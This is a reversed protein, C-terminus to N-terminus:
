DLAQQIDELLDDVHELGVSVRILGDTIGVALCDEKNVKAHSTSAPHTAITRTDGLNTSLSILNLRNLFNQGASLGGKLEFTVVGGGQKMQRKAIAHAPHSELFPYNVKSIAPHDQLAKALTLANACHRDMRVALTELSKSLIWANFPSLSPGTNRGFRYVADMLENNGCVIGGLVRGQGDIFKTASHTIIDAGFRAPQQLYPTAFCNDVVFLLDHKKALAGVKELDIIDLGPNSPTEVFIMKTTSLIEKEWDEINNPDVWTCYIGWKPLWNNFISISSGFLARSAIIHEGASLFAMISSFVAAMGSATVVAREVGELSAMKQELEKLNPNSFRSYINGEQEGAFIAAMQQADDFVFSSTPFIPTSHEQEQTRKHQLRIAKTEFKM